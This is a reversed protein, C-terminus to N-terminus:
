CGDGLGSPNDAIRALPTLYEIWKLTAVSVSIMATMQYKLAVRGVVQRKRRFFYRM